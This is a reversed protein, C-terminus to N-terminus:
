PQLYFGLDKDLPQNKDFEAGVYNDTINRIDVLKDIPTRKRNDLEFAIRAKQGPEMSHPGSVSFGITFGVGSRSINLICLKGTGFAPALLTYTGELETEKRYHRRFDLLVTFAYKCSCRVNIVHKSDRYKTADINKAKHCQPCTIIAINDLTVFSKHVEM